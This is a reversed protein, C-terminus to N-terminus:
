GRGPEDPDPGPPVSTAQDPIGPGSRADVRTFQSWLEDFIPTPESM